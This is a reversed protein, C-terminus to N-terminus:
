RMVLASKLASKPWLAINGINIYIYMYIYLEASNDGNVRGDLGNKIFHGVTCTNVKIKRLPIVGNIAPM